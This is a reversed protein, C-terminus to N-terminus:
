SIPRAGSWAAEDLMGDLEIRDGAGLRSAEISPPPEQASAPQALLLAGVIVVAVAQGVLTDLIAAHRVPAVQERHSTSIVLETTPPLWGAPRNGFSHREGVVLGAAGEV